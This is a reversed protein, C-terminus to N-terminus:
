LEGEEHYAGGSEGDIGEDGLGDLVVLVVELEEIKSLFDCGDLSGEGLLVLLGELGAFQDFVLCNVADDLFELFQSFRVLTVDDFAEGLVQALGQGQLFSSYIGFVDQNHVHVSFSQRLQTRALNLGQIGVHVHEGFTVQHPLCSQLM